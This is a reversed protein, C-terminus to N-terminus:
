TEVEGRDALAAIVERYLLVEKLEHTCGLRIAPITLDRVLHLTAEWSRQGGDEYEYNGLECNEWLGYLPSEESSLYAEVKVLAKRMAQARAEAEYWKHYAIFWEKDKAEARAEAAEVLPRVIDMAAAEATAIRQNAETKDVCDYYCDKAKRLHAITKNAEDLEGKLKGVKQEFMAAVHDHGRWWAPHAADTADFDPNNQNGYLSADAYQGELKNLRANAEALQAEVAEAREIAADRDICNRANCSCLRGIEANAEALQAEAAERDAMERRLADEAFDRENKFFPALKEAAAARANAEALQAELERIRANAKELSDGVAFTVARYGDDLHFEALFEDVVPEYVLQPANTFLFGLQHQRNVFEMLFEKERMKSRWECRYGDDLAQKQENM